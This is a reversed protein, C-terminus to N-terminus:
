RASAVGASSMAIAAALAAAACVALGIGLGHAQEVILASRMTVPGGFVGNEAFGHIFSAGLAAAAGCGIIMNSVPRDAVACSGGSGRSATGM